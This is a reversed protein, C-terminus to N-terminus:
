TMSRWPVTRCTKLEMVLMPWCTLSASSTTLRSCDSCAAQCEPISGNCIAVADHANHFLQSYSTSLRRTSRIVRWTRHVSHPYYLFEYHSPPLGKRSQVRFCYFYRVTPFPYWRLPSEPPRAESRTVPRQYPYVASAPPGATGPLGPFQGARRPSVLCPGRWRMCPPPRTGNQWPSPQEVRPDHIPFQRM